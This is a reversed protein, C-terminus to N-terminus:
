SLVVLRDGHSFGGGYIYMCVGLNGRIDECMYREDRVAAERERLIGGRRVADSAVCTPPGRGDVQGSGMEAGCARRRGRM